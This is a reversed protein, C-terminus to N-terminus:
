DFSKPYDEETVKDSINLSDSDPLAYKSLSVGDWNPWSISSCTGRMTLRKYLGIGSYTYWIRKKKEEQVNSIHYSNWNTFISFMARSGVAFSFCTSSLPTIYNPTTLILWICLDDFSVMFFSCFCTFTVVSTRSCASSFFYLHPHLHRQYPWVLSSSFYVKSTLQATKKAIQQM